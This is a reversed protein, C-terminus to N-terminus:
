ESILQEKIVGRSNEFREVVRYGVASKLSLLQSDQTSLWPFQISLLGNEKGQCLLYSFFDVYPLVKEKSSHPLNPWKLESCCHKDILYLFLLTVYRQLLAKEKPSHPKSKCRCQKDYLNYINDFTRCSCQQLTIYTTFFKGQWSKGPYFLHALIQFHAGIQVSEFTFYGTKPSRQFGFYIIPIKNM